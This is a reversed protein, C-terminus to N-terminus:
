PSLLKAALEKGCVDAAHEIIQKMKAGNDALLEGHRYPGEGRENTRYFCAESWLIRRESVQTVYSRVAFWFHMSKNNLLDNIEESTWWWKFSSDEKPTWWMMFYSQFIKFDIVLSQGIVSPDDTEVPKPLVRLNGAGVRATLDDVFRKEVLPTPDQLAFERTLKDGIASTKRVCEGFLFAGYIATEKSMCVPDDFQLRRAHYRGVTVGSPGQLNKRIEAVVDVRQHTCGWVLFHGLLFSLLLAIKLVSGQM